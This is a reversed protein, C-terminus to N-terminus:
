SDYQVCRTFFPTGIILTDGRTTTRLIRDLWYIPAFRDASSPFRPSAKPLEWQRESHRDSSDQVTNASECWREPTVARVAEADRDKSPWSRRIVAQHRGSSPRPPRTVAKVVGESSARWGVDCFQGCPRPGGPQSTKNQKTKMQRNNSTLNEGTKDRAVWPKVERALAHFIFQIFYTTGPVAATAGHYFISQHIGQNISQNISRSVSKASRISGELRKAPGSRKM